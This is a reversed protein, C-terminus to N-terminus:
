EGFRYKLRFGWMRPENMHAGEAQIISITTTPYIMRTENTANTMFFSLDVPSGMIGDWNASLNVLDSKPIIATLPNFVAVDSVARNADTHTYTVGFSIKGVSESLPLTYSGSLTFRNRPALALPQGVTATPILAAYYIPIAPATFELLKTNLYAYAADLQFGEFLKISADVEIGWIRSKGANVIPQANPIVGQFDITGRHGASLLGNPGRNVVSNVALQQDSFNNYFAAVNFYGPTSGHWSTKAGFEFTDVKEPGVVEIGVNNSNISGQRYGRAYKGYILVDDSPKYDIDILWTPRSWKQKYTTGCTKTDTVVLPIALSGGNFLVRNQCVFQGVGPTTLVFINANENYDTMKDITYRIGGTVSFQNSLKYTGQAYIGKNNFTTKVQSNSISGTATPICAFTRVNTCTIFIDTLGSNFGLPKSLEFYLGAQWNLRDDASNGQLQFEETFTSQQSNWGSFGPNLLITHGFSAGVPPLFVGAFPTGPPYLLNDGSLSFSAGEKYQAYSIINKVTLTDSAKWTTTNIVQWQRIRQYPDPNNNEVDRPGDGRAKQRAVQGCGLWAILNRFDFAAAQAPFADAGPQNCYVVRPVHGNTDSKAFSAVTYNEIDPTLDMDLSLRGSIYNTNDYDRPGIGSKNTLYGDRENWDVGARVRVHESLPVNLVAQVRHLNYSGLSGEVFGEFKDKPKQPVLLIAGGTTNRGFLTGQPGKLVQINQLDFTSGIGAGNGSTTGGFSRPAVVDAFYVGVSPSTKGEQVFGRITFSAKNPGFQANSALSPVYQGLDSAAVINRKTLAEQSLVTISIPVDQLREEQRRATVIIDTADTGDASDQAWAPAALVAAIVSALAYKAIANTM